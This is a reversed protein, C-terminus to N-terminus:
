ERGRLVLVACAPWQAATKVIESAPKGVTVFEFARTEPAVRERFGALLRKADQEALAILETAPV